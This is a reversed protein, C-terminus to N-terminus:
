FRAARSDIFLCSIHGGLRFFTQSGRSYTLPLLAPRLTNVSPAICAFACPCIDRQHRPEGLYCQFM